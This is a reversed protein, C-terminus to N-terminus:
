ASAAMSPKPMVLSKGLATSVQGAAIYSFAMITVSPDVSLATPFVAPDSVFLNDIGHVRHNSGVVSTKPDAGMRCGGFPHPAVLTMSGPKIEIADIRDIESVSNLTTRRWDPLMVKTAGAKFNVIACKKMLDRLMKQTTPGYLYFIEWM